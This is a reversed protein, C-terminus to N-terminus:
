IDTPASGRNVYLRFPADFLIRINSCNKFHAKLSAREIPPALETTEVSSAWYTYAHFM